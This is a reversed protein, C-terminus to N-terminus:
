VAKTRERINRRGREIESADRMGLPTLAIGFQTAAAQIEKLQLNGAAIAPNLLM